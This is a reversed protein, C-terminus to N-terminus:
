AIAEKVFSSLKFTSAGGIVAGFLWPIALGLYIEAGFIFFLGLSVVALLLFAMMLSRRVMHIEAQRLILICALAGTGLFIAGCVIMCGEHGLAQHFFHYLDKKGSLSLNFQPCFLLSIAGIITHIVTFKVWTQTASITLDDRVKSLINQKLHEPASEEQDKIFSQYNHHKTM